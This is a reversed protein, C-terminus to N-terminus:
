SIDTCGERFCVPSGMGMQLETEPTSSIWANAKRVKEM